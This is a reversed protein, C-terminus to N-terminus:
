LEERRLSLLPLSCREVFGMREYVRKASENEHGVHLFPIAGRQRIGQVVRQVLQRAYGRGRFDPHTCVASVEQYGPLFMREGAMAVLVGDERIGFYAGLEHTRARFYGPFALATLALMDPADAEALLEIKQSAEGFTVEDQWVMQAITGHDEVKLEPLLLPQSGVLYLIEGTQILAILATISAPTEASFAAFPAVDSRYRKALNGGVSFRSQHSGLAHWIPNDLVHANMQLKGAPAHIPPKYGPPSM